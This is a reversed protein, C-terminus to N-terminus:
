AQQASRTVCVPSPPAAAKSLSMRGLKRELDPKRPSAFSQLRRRSAMIEKSSLDFDCLKSLRSWCARRESPPLVDSDSLSTALCGTGLEWPAFSSFYIDSITRDVNKQCEELLVDAVRPLLEGPLLELLHRAFDMPTHCSVRWDLAALMDSEMATIDSKTYTGRCIQTLMDLSVVVPEQFKVATYFATIAALQFQRRSRLAEKSNGRGSDLYRDLCSMGIWVSEPSLGLTGQVERIWKAMAGRCSENVDGSAAGKRFYNSCKMSEGQARMANLRDVIDDQSHNTM